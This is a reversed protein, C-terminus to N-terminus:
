ISFVLNSFQPYIQVDKAYDTIDQMSNAVVIPDISNPLQKMRINQNIEQTVQEYTKAM